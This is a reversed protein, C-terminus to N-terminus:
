LHKSLIHTYAFFSTRREYYAFFSVPNRKMLDVLKIIADPQFDVDGDLALLYTNRARMKKQADTLKENSDIQYGLFFYMYMVQSWRKKHRIKDKDKLHCTIKTGGPLNWVLRGGYPTTYKTAPQVKMKRGGYWNKGQVDVQKMLLKVFQNVQRTNGLEGPGPEFADDFFIHTEWEYNDENEVKFMRKALQRHSYSINM